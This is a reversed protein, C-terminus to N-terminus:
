GAAVGTAQVVGDLTRRFAHLCRGEVDIYQVDVAEPTVHFHTFGFVNEAYGRDPRKIEHLTAGGAGSIVFSAKYDPLELHQLTHDHGCLYMSAASGALAAGFVKVLGPGDGHSGNSFLPHHGAVWVWPARTPKELEAELFRQQDLKEQPTLAAEFYNTDLFLIKVLPEGAEPLEVAHWKAPMKWRSAPHERAYALEMEAKELGQGSDYPLGYDHNGLVAYFPCNLDAEPYMKEFDPEFREPTLTQYFNDGLALVGTLPANLKRAFAAMQGAVARQSDNGFGYDGFALLHMGKGTFDAASLQAALRSAWGTALLASSFVLTKKVAERRTLTTTTTM